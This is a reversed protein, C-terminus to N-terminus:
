PGEMAIEDNHPRKWRERYKRANTEFLILIPGEHEFYFPSIQLLLQGLYFHM